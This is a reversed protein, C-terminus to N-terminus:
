SKFIHAYLITYGQHEEHVCAIAHTQLIIILTTINIYIYVTFFLLLLIHLSLHEKATKICEKTFSDIQFEREKM